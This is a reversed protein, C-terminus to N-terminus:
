HFINRLSVTIRLHKAVAVGDDANELPKYPENVDLVEHEAEAPEALDDVPEETFKQEDDSM